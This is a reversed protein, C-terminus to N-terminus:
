EGNITIENVNNMTHVMNSQGSCFWVDGFVIDRIVKTTSGALGAVITARKGAERAAIM